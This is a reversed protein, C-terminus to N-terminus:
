PGHAHPPGADSAEPLDPSELLRDKRHMSGCGIGSGEPYEAVRGSPAQSRGSPAQPRQGSPRDRAVRTSNTVVLELTHVNRGLSERPVVQDVVYYTQRDLTVGSRVEMDNLQGDPM